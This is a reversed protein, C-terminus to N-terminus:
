AEEPKTRRADIMRHLCDLADSLSGIHDILGIEVAEEGHIVSGVDAALEGTQLM